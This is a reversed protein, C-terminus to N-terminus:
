IFILDHLEQCLNYARNQKIVFSLTMDNSSYSTLIIDYKQTIEFIRGINKYKRINEGIISVITNEFDLELFLNM